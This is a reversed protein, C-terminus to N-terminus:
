SDGSSSPADVDSAPSPRHGNLCGMEAGRTNPAGYEPAM